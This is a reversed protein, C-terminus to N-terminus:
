LGWLWKAVFGFVYAACSAGTSNLLSLWVTKYWERMARPGLAECRSRLALYKPLSSIELGVICFPVAIAGWRVNIIPAACTVMLLWFEPSRLARRFTLKPEDLLM